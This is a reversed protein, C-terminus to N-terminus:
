SMRTAVAVIIYAASRSCVFAGNEVTFTRGSFKRRARAIESDMNGRVQRTHAQIEKQTMGFVLDIRRAISVSEGVALAAIQKSRKEAMRGLEEEETM